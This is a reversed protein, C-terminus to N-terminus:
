HPQGEVYRYSTGLNDSIAEILVVKGVLKDTLRRPIIAAIKGRDKNVAICYIWQPNKAQQTVKAPFVDSLKPAEVVEPVVETKKPKKM